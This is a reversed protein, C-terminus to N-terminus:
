LAAGFTIVIPDSVIDFTVSGTRGGLAASVVVGVAPALAHAIWAGGEFEIDIITGPGSWTTAATTAPVGDFLVPYSKGVALTM